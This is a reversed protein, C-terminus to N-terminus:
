DVLLRDMWHKRDNGVLRTRTIDARFGQLIGIVRDRAVGGAIVAVALTGPRVRRSVGAMFTADIGIAALREPLGRALDTGPLSFISGMLRKWFAGSLEGESSLDIAERIAVTNVERRHVVAVGHGEIPIEDQMRALAGRVLYATHADDFGAVILESM